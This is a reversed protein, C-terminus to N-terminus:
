AARAELYRRLKTRPLRGVSFLEGDILIAPPMAPRYREVFRRGEPSTMEVERVSVPFEAALSSLSDRADDCLHCGESTLLVVDIM